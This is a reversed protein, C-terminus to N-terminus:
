YKNYREIKIGTIDEIDSDSYNLKRTKELVMREGDRKGRLVYSLLGTSGFEEFEEPSLLERLEDIEEKKMTIMKKLCCLFMQEMRYSKKSITFVNRVYDYTKKM